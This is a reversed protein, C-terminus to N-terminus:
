FAVVLLAFALALMLAWAAGLRHVTRNWAAEAMIDRVVWGTPTPWGPALHAWILLACWIDWWGRPGASIAERLLDATSQENQTEM